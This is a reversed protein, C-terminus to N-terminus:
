KRNVEVLHKKCLYVQVCLVDNDEFNLYFGADGRYNFTELAARKCKIKDKNLAQCKRKKM